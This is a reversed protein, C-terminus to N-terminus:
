ANYDIKVFLRNIVDDISDTLSIEIFCDIDPQKTTM